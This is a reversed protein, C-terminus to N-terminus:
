DLDVIHLYEFGQDQFARAQAGPDDNFVKASSMEGLQLRVCQGDKLDIAPFLIV